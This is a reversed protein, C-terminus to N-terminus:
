PILILPTNKESFHDNVIAPQFRGTLIRYVAKEEDTLMQLTSELILKRVLDRNNKHPFEVTSVMRSKSRISCTQNMTFGGRPKTTYLATRLAPFTESM